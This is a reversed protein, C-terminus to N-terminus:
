RGGDMRLSGIKRRGKKPDDKDGRRKRTKQGEITELKKGIKGLIESRVAQRVMWVVKEGYIKRTTRRTPVNRRRVRTVGCRRYRMLIRERIRQNSRVCEEFEGKRGMYQVGSYIRELM